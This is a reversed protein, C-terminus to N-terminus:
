LICIKECEIKKLMDSCITEALGEYNFDDAKYWTNNIKWKDQTGANNANKLEDLKTIKIM